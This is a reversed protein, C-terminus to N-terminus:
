FGRARRLFDYAANIRAVKESAQKIAAESAGGAAVRDPHNERVLQKWRARIEDVGMQPGVGLTIYPDESPAQPPPVGQGARGRAGEGLGFLQAVHRLFADEAASVPGDARAIQYLSALVQELINPEGAFAQSLQVAYSEFGEPSARASDFLRAVDAMNGEPIAFSRKFADIEVRSVPGDCKCLKAALVTVSVAFVQEKRGLMSAIRLPDFPMARGAFNAFGNSFGQLKGEDAAHGLAAGFLAGVPGGMAFGAMGGIFKGWYSM